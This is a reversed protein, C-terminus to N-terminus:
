FDCESWSRVKALLKGFWAAQRETLDGKWSQVTELFEAEKATFFPYRQALLWKLDKAHSGEPAPTRDRKTRAECVPCPAVSYQIRPAAGAADALDHFDCGNSRLERGLARLANLAEGDNDSALVRILTKAKPSLQM